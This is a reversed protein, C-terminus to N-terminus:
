FPCTPENNPDYNPNKLDEATPQTPILKDFNENFVINSPIPGAKVFMDAMEQGTYGNLNSESYDSVLFEKTPNQRAFEYLNKIEKIIEEPTSSKEVDYFKKTVIAYSQGQLGRPQGM